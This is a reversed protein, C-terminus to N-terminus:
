PHVRIIGTLLLQILGKKQLKFAELEQELLDIEKESTELIDAIFKQERESPLSLKMNQLTGLVIYPTNGANKEKEIRISLNQELLFKVYKINHQFQDLVYTRQYANFKGKYYHIYGVNAGNGSILLAETDFGYEDIQYFQRACTYFRYKGDEVMANADLKGTTIKCIDGLKEEKWEGHFEPLRVEGSLLKQMIGKKQKRKETIFRGKREIAQDWTALIKGIKVQEGYPPEYLYLQSFDNYGIQKGDRIGYIISNLSSIFRDSKFLYRFFGKDINKKEKLVTYAPSVLGEYKSYEIGGQFSRLSIVFDGADVKKYNNLGSRDYKIEIDLASRPIVGQDQTASLVEYTGDHDKNSYNVFLEKAKTASWELPIMGLKTKKYGDPVVGQKIDRIRSKM